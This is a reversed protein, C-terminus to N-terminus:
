DVLEAWIENRVMFPPTWPPNYGAFSVKSRRLGDRELYGLLEQRREEVTDSWWWGGFKLVAVKRAPVERLTVKDSNPKPLTEMTYKSPMVFATTRGSEGEDTVVPSTMAIDESLDTTVPSTMSIDESLGTTVPTTMDIKESVEESTVPSTMEISEQKTNNGFIYDAVVMFGSNIGEEFDGKVVTEAVIYSDYERIEYGEREELVTYEPMELNFTSFYGWAIWLVFLVAVFAIIAILTSVSFQLFKM